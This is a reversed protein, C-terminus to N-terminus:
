CNTLEYTSQRAGPYATECQLSIPRPGRLATAEHRGGSWTRESCAASARAALLRGVRDVSSQSSYLLALRGRNRRPDITSPSALGEPALSVWRAGGEQNFKALEM